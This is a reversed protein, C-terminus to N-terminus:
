LQELFQTLVPEGWQDWTTHVCEPHDMGYSYPGGTGPTRAADYAPVVFLCPKREGWALQIIASSGCLVGSSRQVLRAVGPVTLQDILDIVGDKTELRQETRKSTITYSRGVVVVRIGKRTLAQATREAIHLPVNQVPDGASISFVVFKGGACVRDVTERDKPTDYFNVPPEPGTRPDFILYPPHPLGLKDADAATFLAPNGIGIWGKWYLRFKDRSAHWKFLEDAFPNQSSVVVLLDDAEKLGELSCYGLGTYFQYLIDGVGGAFLYARM